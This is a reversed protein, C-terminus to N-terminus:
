RTTSAGAVATSDDLYTVDDGVPVMASKVESKSIKELTKARAELLKLDNIEQQVGGQQERLATAQYVAKERGTSQTLAMLALVTLVAGALIRGIASGIKFRRRITRRRRPEKHRSMM